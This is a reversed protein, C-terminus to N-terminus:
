KTKSVPSSYLQELPVPKTQLIGQPQYNFRLGWGGKKQFYELRLPYFGKELPLIYTQLRMNKNIGDYSIILQDNLYLKAADDTDILLSYYGDEKIEMYGEILYALKNQNPLNLIGYPDYVEGITGAGDPKLKKFYYRIVGYAFAFPTIMLKHM